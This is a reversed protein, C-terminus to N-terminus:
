QNRVQEPDRKSRVKVDGDRKKVLTHPLHNRNVVFHLCPVRVGESFRFSFVKVRAERGVKRGFFHERETHKPAFVHRVCPILKGLIPERM